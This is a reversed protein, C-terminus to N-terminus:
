IIEKKIFLEGLVEVIDSHEEDEDLWAQNENESENSLLINYFITCNAIM